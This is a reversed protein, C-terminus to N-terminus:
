RTWIIVVGCQTTTPLLNFYSEAGRYVELAEVDQPPIEYLARGQMPRAGNISVYPEPAPEYLVRALAAVHADKGKGSVTLGRAKVMQQLSNINYTALVKM